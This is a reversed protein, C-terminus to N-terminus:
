RTCAGLYRGAIHQQTTMVPGNGQPIHTTLTAEMTDGSYHAVGESRVAGRATRCTTAWNVIGGNRQMKDIKCEPRPDTPVARSPDVCSTHTVNMGGGPEMRVGPPLTVGPPLQPMQQPMQTQSTFEWRGGRIADAAHAAQIAATAMIAFVLTKL